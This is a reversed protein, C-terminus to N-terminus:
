RELSLTGLTTERGRRDREGHTGTFRGARTTGKFTFTRGGTGRTVEGALDGQGPDGSATGEYQQDRGDFRFSFSM